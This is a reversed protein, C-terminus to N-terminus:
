HEEVDFYTINMDFDRFEVEVTIIAGMDTPIQYESIWRNQEDLREDVRHAYRLITELVEEPKYTEQQNM